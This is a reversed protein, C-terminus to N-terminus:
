IHILSLGLKYDVDYVLKDKIEMDFSPWGCYSNYKRDSNYLAEDCGVCHYTGTEYFNDYKGTYPRETYAKRLVLYSMENLHKRWENDSKEVEYNQQSIGFFGFMLYLSTINFVLRLKM